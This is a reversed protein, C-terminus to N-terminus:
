VTMLIGADVPFTRMFKQRYLSYCNYLSKFYCRLSLQGDVIPYHTHMDGKYFDYTHDMHSARLGTFHFNDVNLRSNKALSKLKLCNIM